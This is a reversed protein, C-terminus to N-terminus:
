PVSVARASQPQQTGGGPTRPSAVGGGGGGHGGQAAVGGRERGRYAPLTQLLFYTKVLM